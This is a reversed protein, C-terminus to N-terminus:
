NYVNEEYWVCIHFKALWTRKVSQLHSKKWVIRLPFIHDDTFFWPNNCFRLVSATSSSGNHLQCLAASIRCRECIILCYNNVTTKLKVNKLLDEITAACSCGRKRTSHTDILWCPYLNTLSDLLSCEWIWQNWIVVKQEFTIRKFQSLELDDWSLYNLVLVSYNRCKRNRKFFIIMIIIKSSVVM